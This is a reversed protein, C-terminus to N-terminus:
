SITLALTDAASAAGYNATITASGTSVAVVVGHNSVTAVAPASSTYTARSRISKGDLTPNLVLRDGVAMTDTAPIGAVASASAVATHTYLLGQSLFNVQFKTSQDGSTMDATYSVIVKFVSVTDGAAFADTAPKDNVRTVLYGVVDATRFAEFADVYVSTSSANNADRFFDLVADYNASGRSVANGLDTLARDDIDDSGTSGLAYDQWSIAASLDLGDNNLETASPFEPDTLDAELIWAVKIYGNASQKAM